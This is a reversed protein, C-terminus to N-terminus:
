DYRAKLAGRSAVIPGREESTRAGWVLPTPEIGVGGPYTTLVIRTNAYQSDETNLENSEPDM